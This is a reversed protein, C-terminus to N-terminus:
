LDYIKNSNLKSISSESSSFLKFSSKDTASLSLFLNYGKSIFALLHEASDFLVQDERSDDTLFFDKDLLLDDFLLVFDFLDSELEDDEEDDKEDVENDDDLKELKVM